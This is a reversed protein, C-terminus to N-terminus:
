MFNHNGFYIYTDIMTNADCNIIIHNYTYDVYSTYLTYYVNRVIINNRIVYICQPALKVLHMLEILKTKHLTYDIISLIM